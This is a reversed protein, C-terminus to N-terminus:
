SATEEDEDKHELSQILSEFNERKMALRSYDHVSDMGFFPALFPSFAIMSHGAINALPKHMELFFAAPVELGRKKIEKSLKEM